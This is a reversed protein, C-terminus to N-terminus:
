KRCIWVCHALWDSWVFDRLAVEKIKGERAMEMNLKEVYEDLIRCETTAKAVLEKDLHLSWRDQPFKKWSLAMEYHVGVKENSVARVSAPVEWSVVDLVVKSLLAGYPGIVRLWNAVCRAKVIEADFKFSNEAIFIPMSEARTQRCVSLIGPVATPMRMHICAGLNCTEKQMSILFLANDGEFLAFRYIRNRLEGPLLAFLGMNSRPLNSTYADDETQTLVARRARMVADWKQQAVDRDLFVQGTGPKSEDDEAGDVDGLDHPMADMVLMVEDESQSEDDAEAEGEGDVDIKERGFVVEKSRLSLRDGAEVEMEAKMAKRGSRRRSADRLQQRMRQATEHPLAKPVSPYRELRETESESERLSDPDNEDYMNFSKAAARKQAATPIPPRRTRM